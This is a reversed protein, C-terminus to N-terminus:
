SGRIPVMPHVRDVVTAAGAVGVRHPFTFKVLVGFIGQKLNGLAIHDGEVSDLSLRGQPHVPGQRQRVGKHRGRVHTEGHGAM